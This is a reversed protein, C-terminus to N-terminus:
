RIQLIIFQQVHLEEATKNPPYKFSMFPKKDGVICYHYLKPNSEEPIKYRTKPLYIFVNRFINQERIKMTTGHM